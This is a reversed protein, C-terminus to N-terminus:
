ELIRRVGQFQNLRYRNFHVATSDFSNIKVMGSSHIYQRDGLYLAVHTIKNVRPGFFLLDGAKVNEFNSGSTVVSGQRYQQSADRLLKIGNWKFVSQTFGSCDVGKPSNGGWLYPLGKFQYATRALDEAKVVRKKQWQEHTVTNWTRVFGSRKPSLKVETWSKGARQVNLINGGVLDSVIMSSEDPQAYVKGYLTKYVIRPESQWRGKDGDTFRTFFSGNMWGLYGDNVRVYYWGKQKKLIEVFTGMMVQNALEASYRPETRLNAVSVTILGWKKEGVTSDPFVTIFDQIQYAPFTSKVLELLATKSEPNDVDGTLEITNGHLDGEIDFVALRRDACYDEKTQKLITALANTNKENSRNCAFNFFFIVILIQAVAIHRMQANFFMNM